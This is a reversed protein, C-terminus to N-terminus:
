GSSTEPDLHKGELDSCDWPAKYLDKWEPNNEEILNIKWERHWRKLQKERKLADYIANYQEAYVLRTLDYKQTFGRFTGKNHQLMRQYLNGTVGIYLTGRRENTLIYVHYIKM